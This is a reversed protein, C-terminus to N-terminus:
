ADSATTTVPGLFLRDGAWAFSALDVQGARAAEVLRDYPTRPERPPMTCAWEPCAGPPSAEARVILAMAAAHDARREGETLAAWGLASLWADVAVARARHESPTDDAAAPDGWAFDMYHEGLGRLAAVVAGAGRWSVSWRGSTGAKRFEQGVLRDRVAFAFGRDQLRALAPGNGSIEAMLCPGGGRNPPVTGVSPAHDVADTFTVDDDTIDLTGHVWGGVRGAAPRRWWRTDTPDAREVPLRGEPTACSEVSFPKGLLHRVTAPGHRTLWAPEGQWLTAGTEPDHRWGGPPADGRGITRPARM